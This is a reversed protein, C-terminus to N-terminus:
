KRWIRLAVDTYFNDVYLSYGQFKFEPMVVNYALGNEEKCEMKWTYLEFDITYGSTDAFVWYKFGWKCSKNKMYQILHCRAKSKVMIISMSLNQM